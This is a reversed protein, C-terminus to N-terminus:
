CSPQFCLAAALRGRFSVPYCTANHTATAEQVQDRAADVFASCEGLYSRLETDPLDLIQLTKYVVQDPFPNSVGFAVNLV